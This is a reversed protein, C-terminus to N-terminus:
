RVGGAALIRTLEEAFNLVVRLRGGDARRRVMIFRAERTVDYNPISNGIAFDYEDAFLATPKGVVPEPGSLDASVAIM